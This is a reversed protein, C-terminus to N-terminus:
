PVGVGGCIGSETCVFICGSRGARGEKKWGRIVVVAAAAAAAAATTTMGVEEEM